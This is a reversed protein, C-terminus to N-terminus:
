FKFETRLTWLYNLLGGNTLTDDKYMKTLARQYRMTLYWRKNIAFTGGAMISLENDFQDVFPILLDHGSEATFLFAYSLGLHGSIRHGQIEEDYWDRLEFLVPLEFYNLTTIVDTNFVKLDFIGQRSGKQTFALEMGVLMKENLNFMVQVGSTFGMKDFGALNDGEMQSLTFGTFARGEFGQAGLQHLISIAFVFIFLLRKM